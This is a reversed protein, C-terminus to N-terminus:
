VHSKSRRSYVKFNKRLELKINKVIELFSEETIWKPKQFYVLPVIENGCYGWLAPRKCFGLIPELSIEYDKVEKYSKM